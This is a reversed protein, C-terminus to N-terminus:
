GKQGSMHGVAAWATDAVIGPACLHELSMFLGNQIVRESKRVLWDTVVMFVVRVANQQGNPLRQHLMQKWAAAVAAQFHGPQDKIFLWLM